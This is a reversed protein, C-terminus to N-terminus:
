QGFNHATEHRTLDFSLRPWMWLLPVKIVDLKPKAPNRSNIIGALLGAFEMM